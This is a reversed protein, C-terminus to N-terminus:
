NARRSAFSRGGVVHRAALAATQHGKAGPGFGNRRARCASGVRGVEVLASPGFRADPTAALWSKRADDEKGSSALAVGLYYRLEADLFLRQCADSLVQAAETYRRQSVLLRGLAKKLPLDNPYKRLGGRYEGEAFRYQSARENFEGMALYDAASARRTGPEKPPQPGLKVSAAPTAEYKGETHNMLLKGASDRLEFRYVVPKEPDPLIREYTRAPSLDTKEQWVATADRYLAVTAGAIVHMVNLQTILATKGATALRELSLIAHENARSVGNLDRGGMWLEALKIQQGPQLFEHTEQNEFLGAQIEVYGLNSDSLNQRAWNLGSTGWHFLKKGDVLAPNAVHVVATRSIANYAAFYPERSGYAFLGIMDKVGSPTSLDVGNKDRPWAYLDTLGHSAMVNAPYVFRTGADLDIDANAWWLYPHREPTPNSLTVRQELAANGDRLIFEALWRMGTVRDTDGLWIEARDKDQRVGFDVPSVTYRSHAVPFNFEIGMAVWAGRPGVDAKKVSENARFIPHGNRKDTCTYLHGGLDPLFSCSLYENELNLRRWSQPERTKGFNTRGTYPYYSVGPDLADIKPHVYPAGEVWTPLTITDQWAKSQAFACQAALAVLLAPLTRRM